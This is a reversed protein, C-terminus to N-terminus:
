NVPFHLDFGCHSIVEHKKSHSNDFLCSVVLPLSSTSFLSGKHVTSPTNIYMSFSIAVGSWHEQRSFEMSWTSGPLRCVMPNCLTPCSQAVLVCVCIYIYYQEAMFFWSIKGNKVIHISRSPLGPLSLCISYSEIKIHFRFVLIYLCCCCSRM